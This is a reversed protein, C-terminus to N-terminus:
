KIKKSARAESKDVVSGWTGCEICVYRRKLQTKTRATGRFQVKGDCVHCHVSAGAESQGWYVVPHTTMWGRLVLYIKELLVVDQKNYHCMEDWAKKDYKDSMCRLWLSFGSHKFKQEGVLEFGLDDLKNSDFKAVNKAVIKTDVIKYPSPPKMKHTLFRANAKKVDFSAGNHAVAIDMLDFLRWLDKVLELDSQKDTKYLKYDPLSLVHTKKEGLWKYSFSLMYWGQKVKIVDQEWIGWTYSILPTTEIDFILIKNEPNLPAKIVSSDVKYKRTCQKM